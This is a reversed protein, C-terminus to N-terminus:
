STKGYMMINHVHVMITSYEFFLTRYLSTSWHYGEHNAYMNSIHTEQGTFRFSFTELSGQTTFLQIKSFPRNSQEDGSLKVYSLDVGRNMQRSAAPTVENSGQGARSSYLEVIDIGNSKSRHASTKRAHNFIDENNAILLTPTSANTGTEAKTALAVILGTALLLRRQTQSPL